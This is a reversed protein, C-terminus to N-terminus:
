FGYIHTTTGGTVRQLGKFDDKFARKSKRRCIQPDVSLHSSLGSVHGRPSLYERIMTTSFLCRSTHPGQVQGLALGPVSTLLFTVPSEQSLLRERWSSSSSKVSLTLERFVRERPKQTGKGSCGPSCSASLRHWPVENHTPSTEWTVQAQAKPVACCKGQM